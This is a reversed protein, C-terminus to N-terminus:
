SKWNFYAMEYVFQLMREYLYLSESMRASGGSASLYSLGHAYAAIAESAAAMAKPHMGKLERMRKECERQICNLHDAMSDTSACKNESYNSFGGTVPFYEETEQAMIRMLLYSMMDLQYKECSSLQRGGRQCIFAAYKMWEQKFIEMSQIVEQAVDPDEPFHNRAFIPIQQNIRIFFDRSDQLSEGRPAPKVVPPAEQKPPAAPPTPPNKPRAPPVPPKGDNELAAKVLNCQDHVSCDALPIQYGGAEAYGEYQVENRTTIRAFYFENALVGGDLNLFIELKSDRFGEAALDFRYWGFGAADGNVCAGSWSAQAPAKWPLDPHLLACGELTRIQSNGYATGAVFLLLLAVFRKM